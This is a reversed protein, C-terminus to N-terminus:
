SQPWLLGDEIEDYIGSTKQFIAFRGEVKGASSTIGNTTMIVM